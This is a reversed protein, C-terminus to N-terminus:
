PPPHRLLQCQLPRRLLNRTPQLSRVWAIWARASLSSKYLTARWNSAKRSASNVRSRLSWRAPSSPMRASRSRKSMTGCGRATAGPRRHMRRCANSASMACDRRQVTPPRRSPAQAQRAVLSRSTFIISRWRSWIMQVDFGVDARRILAGERSFNEPHVLGDRATEAVSFGEPPREVILPSLWACVVLSRRPSLVRSSLARSSLVRFTCCSPSSIIAVPGICEAGVFQGAREDCDGFGFVGRLTLCPGLTAHHKELAPGPSSIRCRLAVRAASWRLRAARLRRCAACARLSMRVQCTSRRWRVRCRMSSATEGDLCANDLEGIVIAGGDVARQKPDGGLQLAMFALM